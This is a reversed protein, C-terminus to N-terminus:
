FLPTHCAGCRGTDFSWARLVHRVRSTNEGRGLRARETPRRPAPRGAAAGAAPTARRRVVGGKVLRRRGPVTRSRAARPCQARGARRGRKGRRRAVTGTLFTYADARILDMM